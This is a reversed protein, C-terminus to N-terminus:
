LESYLQQLSGVLAPELNHEQLLTLWLLGRDVTDYAKELDIFLIYLPHKQQVAQEIATILLLVNDEIRAEKRFGAQTYAQLKQEAATAELRIRFITSFLKPLVSM